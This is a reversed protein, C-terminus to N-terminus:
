RISARTYRILYPMEAEAEKRRPPVVVILRGGDREVEDALTGLLREFDEAALRRGFPWEPDNQHPTM